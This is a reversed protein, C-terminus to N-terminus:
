WLYDDYEMAYRSIAEEKKESSESQCFDALESLSAGEFSRSRASVGRCGVMWWEGFLNVKELWGNKM